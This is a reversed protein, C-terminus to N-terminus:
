LVNRMQRLRPLVALTWIEIKPGLRFLAPIELFDLTAVPSAEENSRM